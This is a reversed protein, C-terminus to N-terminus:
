LLLLFSAALRENKLIENKKEATLDMLKERGDRCFALHCM